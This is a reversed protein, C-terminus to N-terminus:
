RSDATRGRVSSREYGLADLADGAERELERVLAPNAARWRGLTAPPVVEELAADTDGDLGFFALVRRSTEGPSACLDEFRIRLYGDGLREAGYRATETNIWSWLAISRVPEPLAASIGAADAHKRLQNQNLSLAMDRGDRVVHLFRLGPLHDRLLPLLYISRPEKWGWLRPSATIPACHADLVEALDEIMARELGRPLAGERYPLYRNIWRDSYEGLAIADM